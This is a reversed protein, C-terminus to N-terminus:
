NNGNATRTFTTTFLYRNGAKQRLSYLDGWKYQAIELIPFPSYLFPSGNGIKSIAM